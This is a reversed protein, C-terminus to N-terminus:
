TSQELVAISNSITESVFQLFEDFHVDCYARSYRSGPYAIKYKRFMNAMNLDSVYIDEDDQMERLTELMDHADYIYEDIQLFVDYIVRRNAHSKSNKLAALFDEKEVRSFLDENEM